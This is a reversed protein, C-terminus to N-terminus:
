NSPTANAESQLDPDQAAPTTIVTRLTWRDAQPTAQAAQAPGQGAPREPQVVNFQFLRHLKRPPELGLAAIDRRPSIEWQAAEMSIEQRDFNLKRLSSRKDQAAEEDGDMFIDFYEDWLSCLHVISLAKEFIALWHPWDIGNLVGVSLCDHDPFLPGEPMVPIVEGSAALGLWALWLSMWRM